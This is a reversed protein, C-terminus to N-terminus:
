RRHKGKPFNNNHCFVQLSYLAVMQLGNKDHLFMALMGQVCCLGVGPMDVVTVRLCASFFLEIILLFYLRFNFPVFVRSITCKHWATLRFIKRIHVHNVRYFDPQSILPDRATHGLICSCICYIEIYNIDFLCSTSM